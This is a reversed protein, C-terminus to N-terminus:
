QRGAGEGSVAPPRRSGEEPARGGAAPRRASRPPRGRHRGRARAGRARPADRGAPVRRRVTSRFLGVSQAADDWRALATGSEAEVQSLARPGAAASRSPPGYIAAVGEVMDADTMGEVRQRDYDVVMRFLQDQYFSFAVQQVPDAEVPTTGASRRAPRWALDQMLAPRAHITRADSAPVGALAAVSAVTAGLQFERYRSRDQAQAGPAALALALVGLLCARRAIM